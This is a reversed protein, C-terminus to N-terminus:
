DQVKLIFPVRVKVSIPDDLPIDMETYSLPFRTMAGEAMVTVTHTGNTVGSLDLIYSSEHVGKVVVNGDLLIKYGEPIKGAVTWELDIHSETVEQGRAPPYVAMITEQPEQQHFLHILARTLNLYCYGWGGRDGRYGHATLSVPEIDDSLEVTYSDGYWESGNPAGTFENWQHLLVFRPRHQLAADFSEILTRGGRKGHANPGTWGKSDFCAASPTVVEPEGEHYTVIPPISGDMWSWYGHQDLHNDQLQAGVWRITFHTDDVPPTEKRIALAATDISVLLPKGQYQVWLGEFRPNRIFTHYLWEHEENIAEMTTPPGNSLGTMIVAKLVPLGEDRMQALVELVLATDHNIWNTPDPRENWHQKGWLHNCLDIFIWSVGADMLWLAHQRIADPNRSNYFGVMPVAQATSWNFCMPNYLTGYQMGMLHKPDQQVQISRRQVQVMIMNSLKADEPIPRGVFLQDRFPVDPWQGWWSRGYGPDTLRVHEGTVGEPVPWGDTEEKLCMWSTDTILIRKHQDTEMDLKAKLGAPGSVNTAKIALMNDGPRLRHELKDFLHYETLGAANGLLHGNLYVECRDDIAVSLSARRVVEEPAFSKVLYVTQNDHIEQAWIWFPDAMPPLVQVQIQAPGPNPLPLLLKASGNEDTLEHAGWRRENVYPLIWCGPAPQGDSLTVRVDVQLTRGMAVRDRDAEISINLSEARAPWSPVVGAALALFILKDLIEMLM